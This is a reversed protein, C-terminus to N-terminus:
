FAYVVDIYPIGPFLLHTTANVLALDVSLRRGFLRVGYSFLGVNAEAIYYNETVVAFHQGLREEGGGMLMFGGDTEGEVFTQGIGFTLNNELDGFSAVGYFIGATGTDDQPWALLLAGAAAAGGEWEALSAKAGAYYLQERPDFGPFISVGGSLTLQDHVGYTLSPFFIYYDAFYGEGQNLNWGTPAFLLRTRNPSKFWHEGEEGSRSSAADIRRVRERPIEVEGLEKTELLIHTDNEAVIRGVLTSGDRLEVFVVGAEASVSTPDATAAVGMLLSLITAKLM